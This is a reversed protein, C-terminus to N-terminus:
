AAGWMAVVDVYPGTRGSAVCEGCRGERVSICHDATSQCIPCWCRLALAAARAKALAELQAATAPRKPKALDVRYLYALRPYRTCLMQAQIEQNGPQLRMAALQRVTALGSPAGRFPFTPVGNVLWAWFQRGDGLDVRQKQAFAPFRSFTQNRM